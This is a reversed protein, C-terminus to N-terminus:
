ILPSTTYKKVLVDTYFTPIKMAGFIFNANIICIYM